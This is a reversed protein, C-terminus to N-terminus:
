PVLSAICPEDHGVEHGVWVLTENPLALLKDFADAMQEPSGKNFNGCGSVFLTDGTFVHGSSYYCVHGATHCPTFLVQIKTEGLTIVSGDNVEQTVAPVGDGVGGYVDTITPCLKVLQENGGAHDWHSHTTLIATIQVGEKTAAEMVAKPDVPDVVGAKGSAADIVLYM